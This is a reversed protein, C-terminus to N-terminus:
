RFIAVNIISPALSDGSSSGDTARACQIRCYTNTREIEGAFVTGENGQWGAASATVCFNADPMPIAFYVWYTNGTRIVKEINGSAFIGQRTEGGVVTTATGSFAVWARAGYVPPSGPQGGSMKAATISGDALKTNTVANAALKTDTVANAALKDATVANAALKTDTVANAALKTDTVANAALKDATVASAAIKSQIVASTAIKDSTVSLAGLKGETVALPGIKGETVALGGIKGETVALADIKSETVSLAGLKGETVALPGIKSETVSNAALKGETITLNAIKDGTVASDALNATIVGGTKISITATTNNISIGTSASNAEFQNLQEVIGNDKKRWQNFTDTTIIGTNAFDVFPTFESTDGIM